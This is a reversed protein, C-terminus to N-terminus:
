PTVVNITVPASPVTSVANTVVVDYTGNHEVGASPIIFTDATQGDIADGDKRWQYFLPGTGGAQVSLTVPTGAPIDGQPDGGVTVDFVPIAVILPVSNSVVGDPTRESSVIVDYAFEGAVDTAPVLTPSTEGVLNVGNKRWQYTFSGLGTATVSFTVATDVAVVADNPTKTAVVNAVGDSITLPVPNSPVGVETISSTVVVDYVGTHEENTPSIVYNIDTEGQLNIGDKRWQYSLSGGGTAAVHFTVTQGSMVTHLSPTRTAVASTVGEAIELSVASSMLGATTVGNSIRVTYSGAHDTENVSAITYTAGTEGDLIGGNKYWQYTLPGTGHATATFVVTRGESVASGSPSRTIVINSVPDNVNLAVQQSTTSTSANSVVVDYSGQHAEQVSAISYVAATANPINVGDKRWQYTLAGDGTASVTFSYATGPNVVDAAPDTVLSDITIAKPKLQVRG